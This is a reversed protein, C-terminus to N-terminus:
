RQQGLGLFTLKAHTGFILNPLNGEVIKEIVVALGCFQGEGNRDAIVASRSRAPDIRTRERSQFDSNLVKQGALGYPALRQEALSRRWAERHSNSLNPPSSIGASSGFISFIERTAKRGELNEKPRMLGHTRSGEQQQAIDMSISHVCASFPQFLSHSSKSSLSSVGLLYCNSELAPCDM